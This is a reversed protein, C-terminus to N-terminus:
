GLRTEKLTHYVPGVATPQSQYLRIKGVELSIDTVQGFKLDPHLAKRIRGLTVHPRFPKHDSDIRIEALFDLTTQFLRAIRYDAEIVLAIINGAPDPFRSLSAPGTQFKSEVAYAKDMSRVLNEIERAHRDGLFALTLHRNDEPVWAIGRSTRQYPNLLKNIKQQATQNVPIGIFVKQM